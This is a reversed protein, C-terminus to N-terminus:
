EQLPSAPEQYGDLQDIARQGRLYEELSQLADQVEEQVAQHSILDVTQIDEGDEDDRELEPLQVSGYTTRDLPPLVAALATTVVAPVYSRM